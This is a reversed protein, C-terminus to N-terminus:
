QLICCCDDESTSSSSSPPLLPTSASSASSDTSPPLLSSSASLNIRPKANGGKKAHEVARAVIEQVDREYASTYTVTIGKDTWVDSYPDELIKALEASIATRGVVKLSQSSVSRKASSQAKGLSTYGGTAMTGTVQTDKPAYARLLEMLGAIHANGFQIGLVVGGGKESIEAASGLIGKTMSQLRELELKDLDKEFSPDRMSGLKSIQPSDVGSFSIRNDSLFRYIPLEAEARGLLAPDQCHKVVDECTRILEELTVEPPEEIVVSFRVGSQQLTVIAEQVRKLFDVDDHSQGLIAVSTKQLQIVNSGALASIMQLHDNGPKSRAMAAASEDAGGVVRPSSPQAASLAKAGMVDAEHELGKDDNVPVGSNMQATPQVRGEKQQVIHWAEHPLHKEQGPAVHIDTGQAYALANLQSPKASNYHVKVDDMSLGSFSEVGAKLNDPLGTRNPPPAAQEELQAPPDAQMQQGLQLLSQVRPGRQIDEKMQALRQVRPSSNMSDALQGLKAPRPGPSRAAGRRGRSVAASQHQNDKESQAAREM